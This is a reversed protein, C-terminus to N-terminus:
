PHHEFTAAVSKSSGFILSKCLHWRRFISNQVGDRPFRQHFLGLPKQPLTLSVWDKINNTGADRLAAPEGYFTSKNLAERFRYEIL